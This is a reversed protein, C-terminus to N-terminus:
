DCPPIGNNREPVPVVPVIPELCDPISNGNSDPIAPITCYTDLAPGLNYVSGPVKGSMNVGAVSSGMYSRNVILFHTGSTNRLIIWQTPLVTTFDTKIENPTKALETTATSARKIVKGYITCEIDNRSYIYVTDDTQPTVSCANKAAFEFGIISSGTGITCTCDAYSISAALFLSSFCSIFMNNSSIHM